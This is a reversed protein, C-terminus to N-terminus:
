VSFIKRRHYINPYLMDNHPLVIFIQNLFLFLQGFILYITHSTYITIHSHYLVIYRSFTSVMYRQHTMIRMYFSLSKQQLHFIDMGLKVIQKWLNPQPRLFINYYTDESVKFCTVMYSIIQLYTLLIYKSYIQFM